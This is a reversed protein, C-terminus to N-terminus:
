IKTRAAPLQIIRAPAATAVAGAPVHSMVIANPGIRAGDGITVAGIIIAGAGVDIGDGLRPAKEPDYEGAAGITVGQRIICDDGITAHEHVVIAGQHAILLRRGIMTTDHLEIGYHNRIYRHLARYLVSFPARVLRTEIGMRWVGLRYMFMARFGPRTWDRGNTIWDERVLALFGPQSRDSTVARAAHHGVAPAAAPVDKVQASSIM